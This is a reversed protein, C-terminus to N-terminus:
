NKQKLRNRVFTKQRSINEIDALYWNEIMRNPIAVTLPIGFSVSNFEWRIQKVFTNYQCAREEFDLVVIVRNCGYARLMRIQKKARSVIDAVKAEHGRPGDTKLIKYGDTFRRKLSDYDGDGDVIVGYRKNM